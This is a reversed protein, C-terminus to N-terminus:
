NNRKYKYATKILVRNHDYFKLNYIFDGPEFANGTMIERTRNEISDLEWEVTPLAEKPNMGSPLLDYSCLPEIGTIKKLVPLFEDIVERNAVSTYIVLYEEASFNIVFKKSDLMGEVIGHFLSEIDIMLRKGFENGLLEILEFHNTISMKM